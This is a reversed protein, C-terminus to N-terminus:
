EVTRFWNAASWGSGGWEGYSAKARWYFTGGRGLSDTFKLTDSFSVGSKLVPNFDPNLSLEISCYAGGRQWRFTPCLEVNTAGNEPYLLIPPKTYGSDNLVPNDDCGTVILCIIIAALLRKM